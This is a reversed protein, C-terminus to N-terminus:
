RPGGDNFIKRWFYKAYLYNSKLSYRIILKILKLKNALRLDITFYKFFLQVLTM